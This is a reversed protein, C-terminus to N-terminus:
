LMLKSFKAMTTFCSSANPHAKLQQMPGLNWMSPPSFVSFLRNPYSVWSNFIDMAPNVSIYSTFHKGDEPDCTRSRTSYFFQKRILDTETHYTTSSIVPSLAPFSDASHFKIQWDKQCWGTVSGVTIFLREFVTEVPLPSLFPPPLPSRLDYNPFQHLIFVNWNKSCQTIEKVAKLVFM